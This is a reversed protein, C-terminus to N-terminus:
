PQHMKIYESNVDNLFCVMVVKLKKKCGTGFITVIQSRLKGYYVLAFLDRM